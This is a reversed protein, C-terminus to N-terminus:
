ESAPQIYVAFLRNLAYLPVCCAATYLFRPLYHHLLAYLPAEYGLAAYGLLWQLVVVAGSVLTNLLFANLLTTQIVDQALYSITFCAIALVIAHPGLIGNGYGLDLFLGCLIGFGMAALQPEFLAISIAVPLLLLPRGNHIEPLLNPAQQVAYLVFIEILYTLSRLLRSHKM